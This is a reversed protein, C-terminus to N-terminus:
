RPARLRSLLHSPLLIVNLWPHDQSSTSHHLSGLLLASLSWSCTASIFIDTPRFGLILYDRFYDLALAHPRWGIRRGVEDSSAELCDGEEYLNRVRHLDERDVAIPGRKEITAVMTADRASAKYSPCQADRTGRSRSSPFAKRVSSQLGPNSSASTCPPERQKGAVAAPNSPFAAKMVISSRSAVREVGSGAGSDLRTGPPWFTPRSM